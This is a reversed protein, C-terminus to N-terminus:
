FNLKIFYTDNVYQKYQQPFKSGGVELGNYIYDIVMQKMNNGVDDMHRFDLVVKDLPPKGSMPSHIKKFHKDISNTFMRRDNWAFEFNNKWFDIATEALGLPDLSQNALKGSLAIVDGAENGNSARVSTKYLIEIDAFSELEHPSYTGSGNSDVFTESMEKTRKTKQKLFASDSAAEFAKDVKDINKGGKRINRSNNKLHEGMANFFGKIDELSTTFFSKGNYTTLYGGNVLAFEYDIRNIGLLRLFEDTLQDLIKISESTFEILQVGATKIDNAIAGALLKFEEAVIYRAGELQGLLLHGMQKFETLTLKSSKLFAELAEDGEAKLLTDAKSLALKSSASLRKVIGISAETGLSAFEMWMFVRSLEKGFPTDIYETAKLIINGTGATVEMVGVASRAITFVKQAKSTTKAVASVIRLARWAPGLGVAISIVDGVYEAATVTNKWFTVDSHAYLAFAPIFSIQGIQSATFAIPENEANSIAILDMPHYEYNEKGNDTKVTLLLHGEKSWDFNTNEYFFSWSKGSTYGCITPNLPIDNKGKIDKRKNLNAYSSKIWLGILFLILENFNNGDINSILRELITKRGVLRTSLESLFVDPKDKYFVIGLVKILHKVVDENKNIANTTNSKLGNIIVEWLFGKDKKTYYFRPLYFAVQLPDIRRDALLTKVFYRYDDVFIKKQKTELVMEGELTNVSEEDSELFGDEEQNEFLYFLTNNLFTLLGGFHKFKLTIAPESLFSHNPIGKQYRNYKLSYGDNSISIGPFINVKQPQNSKILEVNSDTLKKLQSWVPYLVEDIYEAAKVLYGKENDYEYKYTGNSLEIDNPHYTFVDEFLFIDKELLVICRNEQYDYLTQSPVSIPTLANQVFVEDDNLNPLKRYIAEDPSIDEYKVYYEITGTNSHKLYLISTDNTTFESIDRFFATSNLDEKKVYVLDDEHPITDQAYNFDIVQADRYVYKQEAEESRRTYRLYKLVQNFDGM